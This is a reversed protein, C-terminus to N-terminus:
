VLQGPRLPQGRGRGGEGARIDQDGEACPQGAGFPGLKLLQGIPEQGLTRDTHDGVPGQLLAAPGSGLQQRDLLPQDGAGSAPRVLLRSDGRVLRHALGQRCMRGGAAVLLRHDSIQALAALANGQDHAPGPRALGEGEADGAM